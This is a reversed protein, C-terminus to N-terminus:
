LNEGNPTRLTELYIQELSHRVEGVFQLDAGLEVLKRIITPNQKEPDELSIVLKNELTEVKRVGDIATLMAPWEPNVSSLHFVV